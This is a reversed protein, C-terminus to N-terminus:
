HSKTHQLRHCCASGPIGIGMQVACDVFCSRRVQPNQHRAQMLEHDQVSEKHAPLWRASSRRSAANGVFRRASFALIGFHQGSDTEILRSNGMPTSRSVLCDPSNKDLRSVLAASSSLRGLALEKPKLAQLLVGVGCKRCKLPLWHLPADPDARSPCTHQREQM